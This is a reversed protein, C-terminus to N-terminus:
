GLKLLVSTDETDNILEQLYKLGEAFTVINDNIKSFLKSIQPSYFTSRTLMEYKNGSGIISGQSMLVVKSAVEAAFEIDHTVLIIAKGKEKLEQLLRGLETKLSYDLGRTPEDLLLLQPDSVLVSALAIRQREGSSLDRPNVDAYALLDLRKLLEQIKDSDKIGLNNQTFELEARVTDLFLYDNPNQSLYGVTGALQEVHLNRIDRNQVHIKGRAPKLLGNLNKLLTTKGAANEGMLVLLDGPYVNLNINKLAEKGNEYLFWVGEVAAAPKQESAQQDSVKKVEVNSLVIKEEGDNKSEQAGVAKNILSRGEKITMPIRSFGTLAFLRALPPIFPSNKEATWRAISESNTHNFILKGKDMVLFRDALHFCRELRQEILIVTIGNEENLRRIMTLIEEGAVPDLQSTPEDLILIDPQMALVSALAVKQKLGGSLEAHCSQHLSGINLAGSVEMIRRKILDPSLGINELGFALEQEVNTMVLQSEPDQFVIGVKQVFSKKDLKKSSIGAISLSGAIKGGYFEPILGAIAKVLSSKGSGSGGIVLVYEGENVSLNIKNLAPNATDPYYYTLDKIEVIAM